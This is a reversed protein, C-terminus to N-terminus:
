KGSEQPPKGARELSALRRRAQQLRVMPERAEAEKVRLQAKAAEVEILAQELMGASIGRQELQQTRAYRKEATKLSVRAVEINAQKVALQVELVEIEDRVKELGAARAVDGRPQKARQLEAALATVEARHAKEYDQMAARQLELRRELRRVQDEREKLLKQLTELKELQLKERQEKDQEGPDSRPPAPREPRAAPPDEGRALARAAGHPRYAILGGGTGLVAVTLVVTASCPPCATARAAEAHTKGQLYCLVSPVRYRAPLRSVEEDLVSRLDGHLVDDAPEAARADPLPRERLARKAAAARARLAARYAVKYLWGAVSERRGISAGKQVLALFTAQFADEVDQTRRLVRRCVSLVMPGHRWLLVEFALDDRSELFRQLLGADPQGAAGAPVVLRRLHDILTGLRRM